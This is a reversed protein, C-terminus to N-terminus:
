KEKEYVVMLLLLLLWWYSYNVSMYATISILFVRYLLIVIILKLDKM